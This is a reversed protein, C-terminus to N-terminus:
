MGLRNGVQARRRGLFVGAFLQEPFLLSDCLWGNSMLRWRRVSGVTLRLRLIQTQHQVAAYVCSNGVIGLRLPARHDSAGDDVFWGSCMPVCGFAFSCLCVLTDQPPPLSTSKPLRECLRRAPEWKRGGLGSRGDLGGGRASLLSWM